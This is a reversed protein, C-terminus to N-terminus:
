VGGLYYRPVNRNISENFDDINSIVQSLDTYDRQKSFKNTLCVQFDVLGAQNLKEKVFLSKSENSDNSHIQEYELIITPKDKINTKWFDINEKTKNYFCLYESEKWLIKSDSLSMDTKDLSTWAGTKIALKWSLFTQLINNRYNIIIYDSEKIIEDFKIKDDFHEPFIKFCFNRNQSYAEQKFSRLLEISFPNSALMNQKIRTFSLADVFLNQPNFIKQYADVMVKPVADSQKLVTLLNWYYLAPNRSFIEFVCWTHPTNLATCLWTTGAREYSLICITKM